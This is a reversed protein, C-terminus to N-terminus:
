NEIIDIKENKEKEFNGFMLTPILCAIAFMSKM